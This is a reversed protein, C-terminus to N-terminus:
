HKCHIIFMKKALLVEAQKVFLITPVHSYGTRVPIRTTLKLAGLAVGFKENRVICCQLYDCVKRTQVLSTIISV